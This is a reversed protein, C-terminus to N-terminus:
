DLLVVPRLSCYVFCPFIICFLSFTFVICYRLEECCVFTASTLKFVNQYEVNLFLYITHFLSVQSANSCMITYISSHFYYYALDKFNYIVIRLQGVRSYFLQQQLRLQLCRFSKERDWYLGLSVLQHLYWVFDLWGNRNRRRWARPLLIGFM